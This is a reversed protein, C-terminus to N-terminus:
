PLHEIIELAAAATDAADGHTLAAQEPIVLAAGHADQRCQRDRALAHDIGVAGAVDEVASVDIGIERVGVFAPAVMELERAGGRGVLDLPEAVFGAQRADGVDFRDLLFERDARSTLWSMEPNSRRLKMGTMVPSTGTIWTKSVRDIFVHIARGLGAM